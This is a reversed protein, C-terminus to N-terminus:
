GLGADTIRRRIAALSVTYEGLRAWSQWGALATEVDHFNVNPSSIAVTHGNDPHDAPSSPSSNATTASGTTAASACNTPAPTTTM